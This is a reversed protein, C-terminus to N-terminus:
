RSGLVDSGDLLVTYGQRPTTLHLLVFAPPSDPAPRHYTLRGERLFAALDPTLSSQFDPADLSAPYTGRDQFHILALNHVQRVYSVDRGMVAKFGLERVVYCALFAAAVLSLAVLGGRM